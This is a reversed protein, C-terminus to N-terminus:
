PFYDPPTKDLGENKGHSSIFAAPFLGAATTKDLNTGPSVLGAVLAALMMYHQTQAGEISSALARAKPDLTAALTKNSLVAADRETTAVFKLANSISTNAILGPPAAFKAVVSAESIATGGLEKVADALSSAHLRHQAQASTVIQLLVDRLSILPDTASADSILGAIATYATSAHYTNALLENMRETEPDASGTGGAGGADSGATSTGGGKASAGGGQAAGGGSGKGGSGSGNDDSGGCSNAAAGVLTAAVAFASSRLLQRRERAEAASPMASPEIVDPKSSPATKTM